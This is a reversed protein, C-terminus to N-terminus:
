ICLMLRELLVLFFSIYPTCFMQWIELLFHFFFTPEMYDLCVLCEFKGRMKQVIKTMRSLVYLSLSLTGRCSCFRSFREVQHRFSLFPSSHCKQYLFLSKSELLSMEM